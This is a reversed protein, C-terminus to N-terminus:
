RDWLLYDNTIFISIVDDKGVRVAGQCILILTMRTQLHPCQAVLIMEELRQHQFTM